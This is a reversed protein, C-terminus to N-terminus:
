PFAPTLPLATGGDAPGLPRLAGPGPAFPSFRIHRACCGPWRRRGDTGALGPRPDYRGASSAKLADICHFSCLIQIMAAMEDTKGYPQPCRSARRGRDRFVWEGQSGPSLTRARSMM